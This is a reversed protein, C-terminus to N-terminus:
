INVIVVPRSAERARLRRLLLVLRHPEHLLGPVHEVDDLLPRYGLRVQLLEFDNM